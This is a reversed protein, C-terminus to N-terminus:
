KELYKIINYIALFQLIKVERAKISLLLYKMVIICEYLNFSMFYLGM